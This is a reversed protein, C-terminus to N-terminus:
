EEEIEIEQETIEEAQEVINEVYEDMSEEDMVEPSSYSLYDLSKKEFEDLFSEWIADTTLIDAGRLKKESYTPVEYWAGAKKIFGMQIAPKFLSFWKQFGKAYDMYLEVEFFSKCCRNKVTFFKLISGKFAQDSDKDDKKELKKSCQITIHPMFATQKGGGINKIKSPYMANPDDYVHNVVVITAGTKGAPVVWSKLMSNKIKATLGMDGAMKQKTTADTIIKNSILAGLSDVVFLFKADPEEKQVERIMEFCQQVTVHCDEVHDVPLIEIRDLDVDGDEIFGRTMGGESDICFITHYDDKLAHIIMNAAILSKGTQSDGALQVIKGDPVGKHISGSMLRNLGYDGTSLWRTILGFKSNTYSESGTKKRLAKLHKDRSNAM